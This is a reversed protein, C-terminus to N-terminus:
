QQKEEPILFSKLYKGIVEQSKYGYMAESSPSWYTVRGERDLSIVSDHASDIIRKFNQFSGDLQQFEGIPELTEKKGLGPLDADEKKAQTNHFNKSKSM